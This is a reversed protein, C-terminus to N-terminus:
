SGIGFRDRIFDKWSFEAVSRKRNVANHLDFGWRLDSTFPNKAAYEALWARCGCEANPVRSLWDDFQEQTQIRGSHLEDWLQHYREISPTTHKQVIVFTKRTAPGNYPTGVSVLPNKIRM